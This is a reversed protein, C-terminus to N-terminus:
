WGNRVFLGFFLGGRVRVREVLGSWWRSRKGWLDKGTSLGNFCVGWGEM